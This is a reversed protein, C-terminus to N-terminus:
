YQIKVAEFFIFKHGHLSLEVIAAMNRCKYCYNPASWVTICTGDFHTKVGDMVIQHSRILCHLKEANLFQKLATKGFLNGAGRDSTSFFEHDDTPDSWFVNALQSHESIRDINALKSLTLGPIIGGHICLYKHNVIACVPLLTFIECISWYVYPDYKALCEDMFGYVTTQARNEHNGRLLIVTTPRMIKLILLHIILEVSNYGRDVYDGMFVITRNDKLITLMNLFDYYQGHLDGVAYADCNVWIVNPENGLIEEGKKLINLLVERQPLVKNKLGELINEM